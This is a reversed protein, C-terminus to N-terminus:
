HVTQAAHNNQLVLVSAMSCSRQKEIVIALLALSINPECRAIFIDLQVTKSQTPYYMCAHVHSAFIYPQASAYYHLSMYLTM